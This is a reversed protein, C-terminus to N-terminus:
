SHFPCGKPVSPIVDQQQITDQLDELETDAQDSSAYGLGVYPRKQYEYSATSKREEYSRDWIPTAAPSMPPILWSWRGSVERGAKEEREEFKVFQQAATHHDVISVAQQKFSHLVAVNLEVLARDKWLTTLSSRDLAFVDAVKPLMNYRGPDALNRAGIETEMYWGNFPAASYTIGGIKLAMDSILPVGYWRLQLDAFNSQVPHTLPVEMVLEAPIQTWIPAADGQQVILPLVDFPTGQGRWGLELAVRTLELSAPDGLVGDETEYGAYRILQHNWIRLEKGQQAQRFITITPRIRGGNTAHDIHRFIAQVMENTNEIHRADFVDLSDWFLRGICRSNGRWAVKAGYELEELTHAYTGSGKISSNIEEIRESTEANGKGLETYCTQIFAAAEYILQEAATRERLDSMGKQVLDCVNMVNGAIINNMIVSSFYGRM